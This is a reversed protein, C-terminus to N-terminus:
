DARKLEEMFDQRLKLRDDVRVCLFDTDELREVLTDRDVWMARLPATNDLAENVTTWGHQKVLNLLDDPERETIQRLDEEARERTTYLQPATVVEPGERHEWRNEIGTWWPPDLAGPAYGVAEERRMVERARELDERFQGPAVGPPPELDGREGARQEASRPIGWQVLFWYRHEEPVEEFWYHDEGM